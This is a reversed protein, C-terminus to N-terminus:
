TMLLFNLLSELFTSLVSMEESWTLKVPSKTDFLTESLEYKLV